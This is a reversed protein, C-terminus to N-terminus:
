ARKRPRGGKAGNARAAGAKAVSTVSGGARGLESMWRRTGFVGKVLAPVFLDVDLDEWHLGRGLIEVKALQAKTANELGQLKERQLVLRTNDSLHVIYIDYQAVYRVSEPRPEHDVGAAKGRAVAADIDADTSLVNGKMHKANTPLIVDKRDSLAVGGDDLLDLIVKINESLGHVHRPHHDKPYAVFGNSGFRLSGM